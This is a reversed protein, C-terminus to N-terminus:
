DAVRIVLLAVDDRLAGQQFDLVLREVQEAIFGATRGACSSLLGGVEEETLVNGAGRGRAGIVGDTYLMLADGPFLDAVHDALEPDPFVGLLTGSRGVPEVTGDARLVLPPPHGGSCVTVRAGADTLLLRAYAVTCFRGDTRQQRLAENLTQLIRSPLRQRMAAARVTYRALGTVAAAEAGKGCVDGIVIGWARDGTEFLDYFDGGVENGEGAAHYRAAIEVGSIEPLERPLLSSQLTRAIHVHEGYLRANDVALAARRALDEALEVDAVTYRRSPSTSILTIAGLIRGRATLPVCLFSMAGMDELIRRHEGSAAGLFSDPVESAHISSGTAIVRVIPHDSRPDPAHREMLLSALPQAAPDAAAAAMRRISGDAEQM